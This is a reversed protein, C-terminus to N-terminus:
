TAPLGLRRKPLSGTGFLSVLMVLATLLVTYRVAQLRAAEYNRYIVNQESPSLKTKALFIKLQPSSVVKVSGYVAVAQQARASLVQEGLVSTKFGSTLTVLLLTGVVAAGLASGISRTTGVVGGSQARAEVPAESAVINANQSGILDLGCGVMFLGIILLFNTTATELGRAVAILGVLAVTLGLQCIRKPSANSAMIPTGLSGIAIGIGALLMMLGTELANRGLIIQMYMPIVFLIAGITFYQVVNLLMGSRVSANKLFGSPLVPTAGRAEVRREWRIFAWWIVGGAIIAFPSLSIGFPKLRLGFIIPITRPTIVGLTQSSIFGFLVLGISAVSLLTGIGDLRPRPKAPPDRPILPCLLASGAFMIAVLTFAVRFGWADIVAGAGIFGTLVALGTTAALAGFAVARQKGEYTFAALAFIMPTMLTGGVGCLVRGALLFVTMSTSAASIFSGAAYAIAGMVLIRRMGYRLGLVAAALMFSGAIFPYITQAIQVQELSAGLTSVLARTSLPTLSTETLSALLAICLAVLAGYGAVSAKPPSASEETGRSM